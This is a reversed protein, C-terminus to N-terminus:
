TGPGIGEQRSALISQETLKEGNFCFGSEM